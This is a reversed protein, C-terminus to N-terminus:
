NPYDENIKLGSVRFPVPDTVTIEVLLGPYRFRGLGRWNVLKRYEGNLGLSKVYASSFTTGGDKSFKLSVTPNYYQTPNIYPTRGPNCRLLINNVIAIEGTMSVGARFSRTMTSGIEKFATDGNSPSPLGLWRNTTRDGFVGSAYCCALWNNQGDSKFQSWQQSKASYVWTSSTYPSAGGDVALFETGEIFFNWLRITSLQGLVEEVGADSIVNTQDGLCIQNRNTVWAYSKNFLTCAGTNKIGVTYARGVLPQFPATADGTSPWQEVTEAGFLLLTDGYYLCDLLNDPSNEATAFNLSPLTTGLADTWYFKGTGKDIVILHSAGICCATVQFSGPTAITTPAGSTYQWLSAGAAMFIRDSYGAFSVFHPAASDINGKFTGGDCFENNFKVGVLTGGLIGDVAYLAKIGSNATGIGTLSVALGPRSQLM